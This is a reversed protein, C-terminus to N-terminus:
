RASRVARAVLWSTVALLAALWVCVVLLQEGTLVGNALARLANVVASVPSVAVVPQLWGPFASQPVLATSLILLPLYPIGLVATAVEPRQAALGVAMAGASLAVAFLVAILVFLVLDLVHGRFRFGLVASVALVVVLSVVARAAETVLRSLPVAAAPIPLSRLRAFMGSRRDSAFVFASGFATLMMAQAVVAPPLFQSADFGRADLLRGFAAFFALLFVIPFVVSDVVGRPTVALRLHRGALVLVATM